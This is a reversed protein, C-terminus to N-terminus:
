LVSTSTDGFFARLLRLAASYLAVDSLFRRPVLAPLCNTGLVGAAFFAEFFARPLYSGSAWVNYTSVPSGRTACLVLRRKVRLKRVIESPSATPFCLFLMVSSFM